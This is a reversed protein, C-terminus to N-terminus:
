QRTANAVLRMDYTMDQPHIFLQSGSQAYYSSGYFGDFSINIPAAEAGADVFTNGNFEIVQGDAAKSCFVREYTYHMANPM